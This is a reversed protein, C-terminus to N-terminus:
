RRCSYGRICQHGEAQHLENAATHIPKPRNVHLGIPHILIAHHVDNNQEQVQPEKVKESHSECSTKPPETDNNVKSPQAALEIFDIM